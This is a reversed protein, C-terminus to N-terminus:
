FGEYTLHRKFIADQLAEPKIKFGPASAAPMPAPTVVSGQRRRRPQHPQHVPPPALAPM